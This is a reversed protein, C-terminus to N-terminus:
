KLTQRQFLPPQQRDRKRILLCLLGAFVILLVDGTEHLPPAVKSSAGGLWGFCGTAARGAQYIEVSVPANLTDPATVEVTGTRSEESANEAFVLVLSDGATGSSSGAEFSIWDGGTTVRASWELTGSGTNNVVISASGGDASVHHITQSVSIQPAGSQEFKVEAPSGEAGAATIVVTASRMATTENATYSLEITGDNTGGHGSIISLWEGGQTIEAAWAMQGTGENAVAIKTMGACPELATSGTSAALKTQEEVDLAGDVKSVTVYWDFSEGYEGKMDADSVVVPLQTGAPLGEGVEFTLVALDGDGAPLGEAQGMSVQVYGDETDNVAYDFDGTLEGPEVGVLVVDEKSGPYSIELDAGSLGEADDISVPVSVTEGPSVTVTSIEITKSGEEDDQKAALLEKLGGGAPPNIDLGVALRKIMVVDGSDFEDDGNLDGVDMQYDSTQILGVAIDLAILVDAADVIGDENLDGARRAVASVCVRGVGSVEAAIPQGQGDFFEM